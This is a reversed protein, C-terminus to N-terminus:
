KEEANWYMVHSTVVPPEYEVSEDTNNCFFAGVKGDREKILFDGFIVDDQLAYEPFYGEKHSHSIVRAYIVQRSYPPIAFCKDKVFPVTM